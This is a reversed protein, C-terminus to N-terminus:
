KVLHTSTSAEIFIVMLLTIEKKYFFIMQLNPIELIKIM